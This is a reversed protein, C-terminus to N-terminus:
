PSLGTSPRGVDDTATKAPEEPTRWARIGGKVSFAREYGISRLLQAAHVSRKGSNCLCLLVNGLQYHSRNIATIFRRVDTNDPTDSDLIEQEEETLSHGLLKKFNFLPISEAGEVTGEVELEFPQRVDVLAGIKLRLLERAMNTDIELPVTDTADATM